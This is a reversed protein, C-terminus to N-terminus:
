ERFNMTLKKRASSVLTDDIGSYYSRWILPHRQPFHLSRPELGIALAYKIMVDANIQYPFVVYKIKDFFSTLFFVM